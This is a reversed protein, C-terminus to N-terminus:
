GWRRRTESSWVMSSGSPGVAKSKRRRRLQLADKVWSCIPDMKVLYYGHQVSALPAGYLAKVPWTCVKEVLHTSRVANGHGFM